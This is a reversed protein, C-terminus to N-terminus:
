SQEIPSQAQIIDIYEGDRVHLWRRWDLRAGIAGQGDYLGFNRARTQIRHPDINRARNLHAEREFKGM